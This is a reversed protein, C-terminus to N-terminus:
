RQNVFDWLHLERKPFNLVTRRYRLFPQGLLGDLRVDFTENTERIDTLLAPQNLYTPSVAMTSASSTTPMANVQMEEICGFWVDLLAKGAGRLAMKKTRIFSQLVLSDLAHSLLNFEAGTDVGFRLTKGAITTTVIPLHGHYVFPVTYQPQQYDPDYEIRENAANLKYLILRSEDYDMLMELRKFMEFGILGFISDTPRRELHHLDVVHCHVSSHRMGSWEFSDITATRVRGVDGTIGKVQLLRMEAGLNPFYRSNLVILPAGSDVIFLGEMSQGNHKVTAKVVM